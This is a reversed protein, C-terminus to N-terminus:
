SHELSRACWRFWRIPSVHWEWVRSEIPVEDLWHRAETVENLRLASNAAALHALYDQARPKEPQQASVKSNALSIFALIVALRTTLQFCRIM